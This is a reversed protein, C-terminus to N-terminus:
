GVALSYHLRWEMMARVRTALICTRVGLVKSSNSRKPFFDRSSWSPTGYRALPWRWRADFKKQWYPPFIGVFVAALGVGAGRTASLCVGRALGGHRTLLTTARAFKTPGGCNCCFSTSRSRRHIVEHTPTM